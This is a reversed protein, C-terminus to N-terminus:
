AFLFLLAILLVSLEYLSASSKTNSPSEAADTIAPFSAYGGDLNASGSDTAILVTSAASAAAANKLGAVTCTVTTSAAITAPTTVTLVLNTTSLAVTGASIGTCTYAATPSASTDFNVGAVTIKSISGGGTTASTTFTITASVGTAAKITSSLAISPNVLAANFIAPFMLGSSIDISAQTSTSTSIVSASSAAAAASNTLGTFICKIATGAAIATTAPTTVTLILNTTSISAVGEALGTCTLASTIAGTNFNVGTVTIAKIVAATATTFSVTANVGTAAKVYNTLVISAATLQSSIIPFAVYEGDVNASADATAIFAVSAPAFAASNKLGAVTCTVVVANAVSGASTVTLVLNGNAWAVTGATMGTGTCTYAATPAVSTDFNVGGVHITKISATTATTFTITATVATAAKITSSLAISPTVLAANFIAPFSAFGGELNAPASEGDTTTIYVMKAAAATASNKLGTVVCKIVTNAAISAAATVTLVLNPNSLAPAGAGLGTCTYSATTIFTDVFSVGNVTITKISGAAATTFTITASVATASKAGKDIIVSAASIGANVINPYYVSGVTDLVGASYTAGAGTGSAAAAGTSITVTTAANVTAKNTLGAFICTIVTSAAIASTAPTTVTLILDTGSITAVGPNLGTCNLASTITTTQFNVGAVTIAKIVGPTASATFTVTASVGTAAKVTSSLVISPATLALATIAAL